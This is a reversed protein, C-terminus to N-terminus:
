AGFGRVHGSYIDAGDLSVEVEADGGFMKLLWERLPLADGECWADHVLGDRFLAMHYTWRIDGEVYIIHDGDSFIANALEGCVGDWDAVTEQKAALYETALNM